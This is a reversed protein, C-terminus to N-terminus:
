IKESALKIPSMSAMCIHPNSNLNGADMYFCYATNYTLLELMPLYPVLLHVASAQLCTLRLVVTLELNLSHSHWQFTLHLYFYPLVVLLSVLHQERTGCGNVHMHACVYM